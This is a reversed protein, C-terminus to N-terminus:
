IGMTNQYGTIYPPISLLASRVKLMMISVLISALATALSGLMSIDPSALSFLVGLISFGATVFGFYAPFASIGVPPMNTEVATKVATFFAIYKVIYVIFLAGIGGVIVALFPSLVLLAVTFFGIILSVPVLEIIPQIRLLKVGLLGFLGDGHLSKYFMLYGIAELLSMLLGFIVTGIITGNLVEAHSELAYIATSDDAGGIIGLDETKEYYEALIEEVAPQAFILNVVSLAMTLIIVFVLTYVIRTVGSGRM